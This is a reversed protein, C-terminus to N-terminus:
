RTTPRPRRSHRNIAPSRRKAPRRGESFLSLARTARRQVAVDPSSAYQQLRGLLRSSERGRLARLVERLQRGQLPSAILRLALFELRGIESGDLDAKKLSRILKEQAYGVGFVPQAIEVLDLAEGIAAKHGAVIRERLAAVKAWLDQVAAVLIRGNRERHASEILRVDRAFEEKRDM